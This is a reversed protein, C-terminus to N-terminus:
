EVIEGQQRADMKKKTDLWLTEFHDKMVAAKDHVPHGEPNYLM